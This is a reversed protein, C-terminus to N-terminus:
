YKHHMSRATEFFERQTLNFNQLVTLELIQEKRWDNKEADSLTLKELRKPTAPAKLNAVRAKVV